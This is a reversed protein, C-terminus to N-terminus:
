IVKYLGNLINTAASVEITLAATITLIDLLTTPTANAQITLPVTCVYGNSRITVGSTVNIYNAGTAVLTANAGFELVASGYTGNITIIHGLTITSTYGSSINLSKYDYSVGTATQCNSNGNGDFYIDDGLTPVSAGSAGGSTASWNNSNNWLGNGGNVWYRNAM